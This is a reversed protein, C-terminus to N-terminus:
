KNKEAFERFKDKINLFAEVVKPDFHKGNGDEIIKTAMDHSMAKRYIRDSVLADYVDALAMIRGCLPIDKGSLRSPYGSGDFKEHHSAAIISAFQLYKRSPTREYLERLFAGGVPAHNKMEIFEADNLKGDKLLVADSVKIKGTDHLPSARVILKLIEDNLSDKSFADLRILEEGLLRVYEATRKVHGGTNEDRAEVLDAFSTVMSDEIISLEHELNKRQLELEKRRESLEIHIAIRHLLIQKDADKNVFDVAGRKLAEVQVNPDDSATFFIIPVEKMGFIEKLKALTEFGDMNPMEKDLLVLDPIKKECYDIAGAGSNVTHINSYVSELKLKLVLLLTPSDDVALIDANSHATAISGM